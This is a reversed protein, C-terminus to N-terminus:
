FPRRKPRNAHDAASALSRAHLQAWALGVAFAAFAVVITVLVAITSAPM